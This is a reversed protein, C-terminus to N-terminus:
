QIDLKPLIHLLLDSRSIDYIDKRIPLHLAERPLPNSEHGSPPTSVNKMFIDSKEPLATSEKQPTQLIRVEEWPPQW